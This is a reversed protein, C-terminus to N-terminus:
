KRPEDPKTGQSPAPNGEPAGQMSYPPAGSSATGTTAPTTSTTKENQPMTPSAMTDAPKPTSDGPPAPITPQSTSSTTTTSTSSTQEKGCGGIATLVPFLVAASAALTWGKMTTRM